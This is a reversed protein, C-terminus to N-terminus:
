EDLGATRLPLRLEVVYGGSSRPEARMSAEDGYLLALRARLDSQATQTGRHGSHGPGDDVVTLVLSHGDRGVEIQVHVPRHTTAVAHKVTNEVAPQLVFRPVAVEAPEVESAVHMAFKLRTPFRLAELELYDRVCRLEADLAVEDGGQGELSYRMLGSLREVAAVALDNKQEEILAAVSNLANFLFHPNLRARLADLEARVAAQQAQEARLEHTRARDRLADYLATVVSTTTGVSAGIIWLATRLGWPDYSAFTSLTALVVEAGIVTGGVVFVFHHLSFPLRWGARRGLMYLLHTVTGIGLTAITNVLLVVVISSRRDVAVMILTLAAIIVIFSGVQRGVATLRRGLSQPMM